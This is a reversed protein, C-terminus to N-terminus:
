RRTSRNTRRRWRGTMGISAFAARRPWRQMRRSGALWTATTELDQTQGERASLECSSTAIVTVFYGSRATIDGGGNKLRVRLAHWGPRLPRSPSFSLLYRARMEDLASTFLRALDSESEASWLRGGTTEVVREVFWTPSLRRSISLLADRSTVTVVHIVIGARRASELVEEDSLWSANDVGDSFVLILPRARADYETALALQVADRLATRGDASLAALAGRVSALDETIPVLPRLRHSFTLLGAWEGPRLAAVLGDAAAILNTLRDGLVSGSTDLV